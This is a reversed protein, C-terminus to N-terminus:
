KSEEQHHFLWEQVGFYLNMWCVWVRGEELEAASRGKARSFALWPACIKRKLWCQTKTPGLRSRSPQRLLYVTWISWSCSSNVLSQFSQLLRLLHCVAYDQCCASNSAFLIFLRTELGGGAQDSSNVLFWAPVTVCDVCERCYWFKVIGRSLAEM